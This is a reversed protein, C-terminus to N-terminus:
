VQTPAHTVTRNDYHKALYDVMKANMDFNPELLKDDPEANFIDAMAKIFGNEVTDDVIASTKDDIDLRDLWTNTKMNDPRSFAAKYVDFATKANGLFPISGLLLDFGIGALKKGKKQLRIVNITRKLDGYTKLQYDPNEEGAPVPEAEKIVFDPNLKQMVEFLRQKNDKM